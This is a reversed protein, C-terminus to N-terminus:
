ELQMAASAQSSRNRFAAFRMSFRFLERMLRGTFVPRESKRLCNGGRGRLVVIRVTPDDALRNLMGLLDDMMETTLANRRDPRNLTIHAVNGNLGFEIGDTM